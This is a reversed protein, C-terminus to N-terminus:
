QEIELTHRSFSASPLNKPLAKRTARAWCLDDVEKVVVGFGGTSATTGTAAAARLVELAIQAGGPRGAGLQLPGLAQQLQQWHTDLLCREVLKVATEQLCIPRIGGKPKSFAIVLFLKAM